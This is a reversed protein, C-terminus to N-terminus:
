SRLLSPLSSMSLGHKELKKLAADILALAAFVKQVDQSAIIVTIGAVMVKVPKEKKAGKRKGLYDAVAAGVADRCLLGKVIKEAMEQMAEPTPLRSLHYASSPPVQGEGNGILARIGEPLKTSIAMVKSVQAPSVHIFRALQAQTWGNMAMLQAYIEAREVDSFELRMENAQLQALILDCESLPQDYLLIPVTDIGALLAAQRRTEGDVTEGAKGKRVAIIPQTVGRARVDATFRAFYEAYDTGSRVRKDQRVPLLWSPHQHVLVYTPIPRESKPDYLPHDSLRQAAAQPTRQAGNPSITKEIIAAPLATVPKANEVHAPIAVPIALSATQKSQDM